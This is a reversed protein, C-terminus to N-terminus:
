KAKARALPSPVFPPGAKPLLGVVACILSCRTAAIWAFSHGLSIIVYNKISSAPEGALLGNGIERLV